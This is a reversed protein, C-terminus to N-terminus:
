FFFEVGAVARHDIAPEGAQRALNASGAFRRGYLFGVYPAFRRTFEYRLRMAFQGDALGAGKARARDPKGYANLEIEPKLILRQTLYLDYETKLRVATRGEEGVYGTLEVDFWYPSIGQVGFAGWERSPGGGFDHRIGFQADWFPLIAHAWLAEVKSDRTEGDLTAGESKIWLKDFDGGMWGQGDWAAGHQSGYVGELNELWVRHHLGADDMDTDMGPMMPPMVQESVAPRQLAPEPAHTSRNVTPPPMDTMAPASDAAIAASGGLIAAIGLSVSLACRRV